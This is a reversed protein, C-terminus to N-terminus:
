INKTTPNQNLGFGVLLKKLRKEFTLLIFNILIALPNLGNRPYKVLVIYWRTNHIRQM